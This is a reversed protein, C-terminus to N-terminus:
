EGFISHYGANSKLLEEHKGDGTIRGDELFVVRDAAQVTGARSTIVIVTLLPYEAKINKIVNAETKLDLASFSDDLVLIWSKSVLARAIAVRQRQGGSLNSGGPAVEGGLDAFEEVCAARCAKRLTEEDIDETNGYLLNSRITGEFLNTQQPVYIISKKLQEATYKRADIGNIFVWGENPDIMRAMLRALTSKGSGTHGAIAIMEAGKATLNIDTLSAGSAKPYTYSAGVIEITGATVPMVDTRNQGYEANPKRMIENIRRASVTATPLAAAIMSMMAFSGIIASAYSSYMVISQFDEASVAVRSGVYRITLVAFASVAGIVPTLLSLRAAVYNADDTFAASAKKFRDMFYSESNFARITRGGEVGECIQNNIADQDEQLKVQTKFVKLSVTLTTAVAIAAGIATIITFQTNQQVIKIIAIVTMFPAFAAVSFLLMLIAQVNGIDGEGRTLLAGVSFETMDVPRVSLCKEMYAQKVAYSFNALVNASMVCGVLSCLLAGIIVAFMRIGISTVDAARAGQTIVLAAIRGLYEPLLLTLYVQILAFFMSAVIRLRDKKLIYSRYLKLM